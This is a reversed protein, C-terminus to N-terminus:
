NAVENLTDQWQTANQKSVVSGERTALSYSGDGKLFVIYEEELMVEAPLNLIIKEENITGKFNQLVAVELTKVYKNEHIVAKPVIHLIHSSLSALEKVNSAKEIVKDDNNSHWNIGPAEKIYNIMEDTTKQSILKEQGILTNQNIEIVANENVPTYVPNPYLESEWYELFLIYEKGDELMGLSEYVDIIETKTNGKLQHKISVTYKDTGMDNFQERYIVNGVVINGSVKILDDLNTIEFTDESEKNVTAFIKESEQNATEQVTQSKEEACGTALFLCSLTVVSIKKISKM